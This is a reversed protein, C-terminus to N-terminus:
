CFARRSDTQKGCVYALISQISIWIQVRRGDDVLWIFIPTADQAGFLLLLLGAVHIISEMFLEIIKAHAM